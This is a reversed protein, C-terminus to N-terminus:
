TSGTMVRINYVKNKKAERQIGYMASYHASPVQPNLILVSNENLSKRNQMKRPIRSTNHTRHRFEVGRMAENGPRSFSFILYKVDLPFRVWLKNVTARKHGQTVVVINNSIKEITVLKRHSFPCLPWKNTLTSILNM